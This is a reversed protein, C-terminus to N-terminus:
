NMGAHSLRWGVVFGNKDPFEAKGFQVPYIKSVDNLNKAAHSVTIRDMKRWINKEVRKGLKEVEASAGELCGEKDTQVTFHPLPLPWSRSERRSSSMGGKPIKDMRGAESIM